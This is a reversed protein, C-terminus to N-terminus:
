HLCCSQWTFHLLCEVGDKTLAFPFWHIPLFFRLEVFRAGEDEDDEDEENIAKTQLRNHAPHHGVPIIVPHCTSSTLHRPNSKQCHAVPFHKPVPETLDLWHFWFSNSIPTRAM